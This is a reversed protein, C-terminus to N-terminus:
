RRRSARARGNGVLAIGEMVADYVQKVFEESAPEQRIMRRYFVPGFLLDLVVMPPVGKRLAGSDQAARIMSATAKRRPTFLGHTLADRVEPDCQAEGILSALIRGPLEGVAAAVESLERRLERLPAGKAPPPATVAALRLLVEVVLAARNPWRRYITTKAVGSRASIEEITAAPYGGKKLLELAADLVAQQAKESRPRGRSGNPKEPATRPM